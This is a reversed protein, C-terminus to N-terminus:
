DGSVSSVEVISSISVSLPIRSSDLQIEFPFLSAIFRLPTIVHVSSLSPFLALGRSSLWLLDIPIPIYFPLQSATVMSFRKGLINVSQAAEPPSFCTPLSNPVDKINDRACHFSDDWTMQYKEESRHKESLFCAFMELRLKKKMRKIIAVGHSKGRSKWHLLRSSNFISPTPPSSENGIIFVQSREWM